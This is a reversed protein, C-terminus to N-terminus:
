KRSLFEAMAVEIYRTGSLLMGAAYKKSDVEIWNTSNSKRDEVNTYFDNGVQYSNFSTPYVINQKQSSTIRDSDIVGDIYVNKKISTQLLSAAGAGYKGKSFNIYSSIMEAKEDNLKVFAKSDNLKSVTGSGLRFNTKVIIKAGNGRLWNDGERTFLYSLCVDVILADDLAKSLAPTNSFAMGTNGSSETNMLRSFGKSKIDKGAKDVGRIFYSHGDPVVSLVGPLGADKVIPGEVLQWGEYVETKGAEASSIITFGEAKLQNVFDTYLQNAAQQLDEAEVGSLGLTQVVSADGKVINGIGSGGQKTDKDERYVENYVLFSNIYINQNGKFFQKEKYGSKEISIENDALTQSFAFTCLAGLSFLLFLKKM